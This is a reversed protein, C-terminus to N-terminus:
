SDEIDYIHSRTVSESEGYGNNSLLQHKLHRTQYKPHRRKYKTVPRMSDIQPFTKREQFQWGEMASVCVYIKHYCFVSLMQVLFLLLSFNM